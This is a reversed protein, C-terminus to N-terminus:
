GILQSRVQYYPVMPVRIGAAQPTVSYGYVYSYYGYPQPYFDKAGAMAKSESTQAEHGM